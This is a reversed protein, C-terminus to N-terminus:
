QSDGLLPDADFDPEDSPFHLFCIYMALYYVVGFQITLEIWYLEDENSRVISDIM